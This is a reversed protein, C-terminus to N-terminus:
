RATGLCRVPDVARRIRRPHRAAGNTRESWPLLDQRAEIEDPELQGTPDIWYISRGALPFSQVSGDIIVPGPYGDQLPLAHTRGTTFWLLLGALLMAMWARLATTGAIPSPLRRAVSMGPNHGSPVRRSDMQVPYTSLSFARTARV